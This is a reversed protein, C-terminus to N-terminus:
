EEILGGEFEDLSRPGTLRKTERCYACCECREPEVVGQKIADFLPMKELLFALEADMKEQPIQVVEIDPPEEKTIVALYCPLRRGEIAQYIAMQLPWNWADAFTMRGQGPLYVSHLDKVTKLDVIRRGDYVDLKAKFPYGGIEGTLIKQKEGTMYDMFVPDDLARGIMRAAHQYPAKPQGTRSNLVDPHARVFADLTGEFFADVYGGVLLAESDPRSYRGTMEAYARAPCDLFSKVLSASWYAMNAETSYYNNPTLDM